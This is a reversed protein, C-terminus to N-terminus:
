KSKGHSYIDNHTYEIFFIKFINNQRIGLFARNDGSARFVLLKEIDPSVKNQAQQTLHKVKIYETGFSHKQTTYVDNWSLSSLKKLRDLFSIFFKCDKSAKSYSISQLDSFDFRVLERKLEKEQPSGLNVKRKM